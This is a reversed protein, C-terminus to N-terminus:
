GGPRARGHCDGCHDHLGRAAGGPVPFPAPRGMASPGLWPARVVAVRGRSAELRVRSAPIALAMSDLRGRLFFGSKWSLSEGSCCFAVSKCLGARGIRRLRLAAIRSSVQAAEGDAASLPPRWFFAGCDCFGASLGTLNNQRVRWKVASAIKTGASRLFRDLGGVWYRFFRSLSRRPLYPISLLCSLRPPARSFLSRLFYRIPLTHWRLATRKLGVVRM